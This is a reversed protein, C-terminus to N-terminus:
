MPDARYRGTTPLKDVYDQWGHWNERLEEEVSRPALIALGTGEGNNLPWARMIRCLFRLSTKGAAGSYRLTIDIEEIEISQPNRDSLALIRRCKFGDVESGSEDEPRDYCRDVFIGSTRVAFGKCTRACVNEISGSAQVEGDPSRLLLDCSTDSPLMEKRLGGKRRVKRLRWMVNSFVREYNEREVMGMREKTKRFADLQEAISDFVKQIDSHRDEALHDTLEKLNIGWKRLGEGYTLQARRIYGLLAQGEGALRKQVELPITYGSNSKAYHVLKLTLSHWLEVYDTLARKLSGPTETVSDFAGQLYASFLDFTQWFPAFHVSSVEAVAQVQRLALYQFCEILDARVDWQPEPAERFQDALDRWIAESCVQYRTEGERLLLTGLLAGYVAWYSRYLECFRKPPKRLIREARLLFRTCDVHLGDRPAMLWLMTEMCKKSASQSTQPNRLREIEKEFARLRPHYEYCTCPGADDAPSGKLQRTGNM